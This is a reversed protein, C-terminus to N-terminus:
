SAARADSAAALGRQEDVRQFILLGLVFFVAM